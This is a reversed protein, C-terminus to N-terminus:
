WNLSMGSGAPLHHYDHASMMSRVDWLKISQDKANSIFYRGDGQMCAAASSLYYSLSGPVESLCSYRVATATMSPPTTLGVARYQTKYDGHEALLM